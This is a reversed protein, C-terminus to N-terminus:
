QADSSPDLARTPTNALCNIEASMKTYHLVYRVSANTVCSLSSIHMPQSNLGGVTIDLKVIVVVIFSLAQRPNLLTSLFLQRHYYNFQYNILASLVQAASYVHKGFAFWKKKNFIAQGKTSCRM